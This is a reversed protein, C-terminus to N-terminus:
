KIKRSKVYLPSHREREPDALQAYPKGMVNLM